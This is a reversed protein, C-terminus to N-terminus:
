GLSLYDDKASIYNDICLYHLDYNLYNTVVLEPVKLVNAFDWDTLTKKRTITGDKYKIWDSPLILLEVAFAVAHAEPNLTYHDDKFNSFDSAYDAATFSQLGSIKRDGNGFFDHFNKFVPSTVLKEIEPKIDTGLNSKAGIAELIDERNPNSEDCIAEYIEYIFIQCLEKCYAFRKYCPNADHNLYLKYETRQEFAGVAGSVDQVKDDVIEDFKIAVKKGTIAHLYNLVQQTFGPTIDVYNLRSFTLSASNESRFEKNVYYDNLYLSKRLDNLLRYFLHFESPIM